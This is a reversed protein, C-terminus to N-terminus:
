GEATHKGKLLGRLAPPLYFRLMSKLTVNRQLRTKVFDEDDLTGIDRYVVDRGKPRKRKKQSDEESETFLTKDVEIMELYRGLRGFLKRGKETHLYVRSCGASTFFAPLVERINAFDGITMDANKILTEYRCTYCCERYAVRKLFTSMYPDRVTARYHDNFRVYSSMYGHYGWGKKKCRFQFERM